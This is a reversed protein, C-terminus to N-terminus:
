RCALRADGIMRLQVEGELKLSAKGQWRQYWGSMHCSYEASPLLSSPQLLEAFHWTRNKVEVRDRGTRASWAPMCIAKQARTQKVETAIITVILRHELQMLLHGLRGSKALSAAPGHTRGLARMTCSLQANHQRAVKM